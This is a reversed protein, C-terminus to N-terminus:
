LQYVSKILGLIHYRRIKSWFSSDYAFCQLGAVQRSVHLDVAFLTSGAVGKVGKNPFM